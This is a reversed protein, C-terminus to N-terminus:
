GRSSGHRVGYGGGGGSVGSASSTQSSPSSVFAAPSMGDKGRPRAPSHTGAGGGALGAGAVGASTANNASVALSQAASSSIFIRVNLKKNRIATKNFTAWIKTLAESQKAASVSKLLASERDGLGATQVLFKDSVKALSTPNRMGERVLQNCEKEILFVNVSESEGPGVLGQNPRVLYRRPETTKVKFAITVESSNSVSLVCGPQSNPVLEFSLSDPSVDVLPRDM